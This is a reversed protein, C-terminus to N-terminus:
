AHNHTKLEFISKSMLKYLEQLNPNLILDLHTNMTRVDNRVAAGTQITEPEFKFSNNISNTLLNKLISYDLQHLDLEQKALAILHNSFNNTVTAAMHLYQRQLGNVFVTQNTFKKAFIEIIKHNEASNAELCIPTNKFSVFTYKNVSEIPWFVAQNAHKQLESIPKLGSFHVVLGTTINLQTAVESIADDNVCLLYLDANSPLQQITTFHPVDFKQSLLVANKLNKSYIGVMNLNAQVCSVMLAEAM